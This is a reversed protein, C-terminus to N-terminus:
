LALTTIKRAADVIQYRTKSLTDSDDGIWRPYEAPGDLDLTAPPLNNTALISELVDALRRLESSLSSISSLENHEM